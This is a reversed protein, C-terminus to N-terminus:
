ASTRYAVRTSVPRSAASPSDSKLASPLVTSIIPASCEGPMSTVAPESAWAILTAPPTASARLSAPSAPRTQTKM